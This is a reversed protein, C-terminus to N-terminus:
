RRAAALSVLEDAIEEAADPRAASRMSVAMAGLRAPDGLLDAVRGPLRALESERLVLAGGAREFWRANKEQHGGTAFEGPVLVAPLGAAALEWVSGGARAVAVDAAGYALGIDDLFPLLRYGPRAVRAALREYDRLGCLHLVLPGSEAWAAVAADNLVQSGLSGGFVLVVAGEAPLELRARAEDRSVARSSAPIPRGVARYKDGDRGVPLALFVRRAFPAALRNALGLHADAETLAAPIRTAWAALVMPGAVYGGGGLVVDPRRRALIRACAAPAAAALGLARVLKLGPRRPFGAVAFADFPYGREPVLQAEVRDPSGAFTVEV